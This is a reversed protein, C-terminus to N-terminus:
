LQATAASNMQEYVLGVCRTTNFLYEKLIGCTLPFFHFFATLSLVSVVFKNTEPCAPDCKM